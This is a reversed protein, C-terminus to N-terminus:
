KDLPSNYPSTNAKTKNTALVMFPELDRRRDKPSGHGSLPRALTQARGDLRRKSRDAADATRRPSGIARRRELSVNPPCSLVRARLIPTIPCACARILKKMRDHGSRIPNGRATAAPVAAILGTPLALIARPAYRSPNM